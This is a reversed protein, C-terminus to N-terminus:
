KFYLLPIQRNQKFNNKDNVKGTLSKAVEFIYRAKFGSAVNEADTHLQIKVGTAGRPSEVPGPATLGCYRGLFRDNNDRFLIYIEIWDETCM